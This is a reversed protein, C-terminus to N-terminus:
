LVESEDKATANHYSISVNRKLTLLGHCFSRPRLHHMCEPSGTTVSTHVM